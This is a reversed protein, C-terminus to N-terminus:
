LSGSWTIQMKWCRESWFNTVISQHWTKTQGGRVKKWGDGVSILMSRRPLRYEPMRFVLGLWRM